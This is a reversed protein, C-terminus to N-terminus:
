RKRISGTKLFCVSTGSTGCEGGSAAISDTQHVGGGELAERGFGVDWKRVHGLPPRRADGGLLGAGRHIRDRKVASEAGAPFLVGPYKDPQGLTGHCGACENLYIKGGAILNENTPPFPNAMEPVQRRV